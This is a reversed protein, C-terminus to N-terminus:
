GVINIFSPRFGYLLSVLSIISNPPQVGLGGGGGGGCAFISDIFWQSVLLLTPQTTRKASKCGSFPACHGWASAM